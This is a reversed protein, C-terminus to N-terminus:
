PTSKIAQLYINEFTAWEDNKKLNKNMSLLQNSCLM